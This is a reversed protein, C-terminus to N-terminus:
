HVLQGVGTHIDSALAGTKVEVLLPAQHYDIVLDIEYGALHWVKRAGIGRAKLRDVLTNVVTGHLRRGVRSDQPPIAFPGTPELAGALFRARSQDGIPNAAVGSSAATDRANQCRRIFEATQARIHARSSADLQCVKFWRREPSRGQAPTVFACPLGTLTEFRAEDIRDANGSSNLRGQRLLWLKKDPAVGIQVLGDLTGPNWPMNFEVTAPHCARITAFDLGPVGHHEREGRLLCFGIGEDSLWWRNAAIPEASSRMIDHWDLIHDAVESPITLLKYGAASAARGM